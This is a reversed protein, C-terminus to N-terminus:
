AAISRPPSHPHTPWLGLYALIKEIVEVREIFGLLRM